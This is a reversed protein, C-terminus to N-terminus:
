LNEKVQFFEIPLMVMLHPMQDSSAQFKTNGHLLRILEKTLSLEIGPGEQLQFKYYEFNWFEKFLDIKNENSLADLYIFMLRFLGSEYDLSVDFHVSKGKGAIEISGYVLSDVIQRVLKIDSFMYSVDQSCTFIFNVCHEGRRKNHFRVVDRVLEIFCFESCAVQIQGLELRYLDFFANSTRALGLSSEKIIKATFNVMSETSNTEIFESYGIIGTLSTRLEHSLREILQSDPLPRVQAQGRNPRLFTCSKLQTLWFRM